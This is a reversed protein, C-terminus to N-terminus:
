VPLILDARISDLGSSRLRVTSIGRCAQTLDGQNGAAAGGSEVNSSRQLRPCSCAPPGPPQLPSLRTRPPVASEIMPKVSACLCRLTGTQPLAARRRRLGVGALLQALLLTPFPFIPAHTPSNGQSVAGPGKFTPLSVTPAQTSPPPKGVARPFSWHAHASPVLSPSLLNLHTELQPCRPV